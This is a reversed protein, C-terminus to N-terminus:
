KKKEDRLAIERVLRTIKDQNKSTRLYLMLSFYYLILINFFLVMSIDRGFFSTISSSVEPINVAFVATVWLVIWFLCLALTIKRKRLMILSKFIALLGIITIILEAIMTM